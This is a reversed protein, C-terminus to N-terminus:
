SAYTAHEVTKANGSDSYAAQIKVLFLDSLPPTTGAPCSIIKTFTVSGVGSVTETNTTTSQSAAACGSPYATTIQSASERMKQYTVNSLKAIKDADKSDRIVQTYLQYGAFLFVAAIFLTILLEVATFGKKLTTKLNKM